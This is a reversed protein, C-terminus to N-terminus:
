FFFAGCALGTCRLRQRCTRKSLSAKVIHVDNEEHLSFTDTVISGYLLIEASTHSPQGEFPHKNTLWKEPGFCTAMVSMTMSSTNCAKGMNILSRLYDCQTVRPCCKNHVLFQPVVYYLSLNNYPYLKVYFSISYHNNSFNSLYVTSLCIARLSHHHYHISLLPWDRPLLTLLLWCSVNVSTCPLSDWLQAIQM